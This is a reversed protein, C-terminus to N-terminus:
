GARHSRIIVSTGFLSFGIISLFFIIDRSDLVGRHFGEFHPMVSFGAVINVLWPAAWQVFMNTVPPWGALIMLLCIVVSVIFSVVQNRTMASTMCSIALYGGALLLSGIYGCFIPGMDADGLYNVTIVVPFTLFLALALFIWSAVFKGVIAQWATIPMTLLLEMTGSRREESWLRMGVAPVLFLYLWPHWLFFSILSAEGREFFGGAMFTFFGIMLLFIVIFVYAVPSAFYGSLERKAITKINAIASM